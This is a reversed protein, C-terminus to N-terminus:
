CVGPDRARSFVMNKVEKASSTAESVYYYFFLVKLFVGQGEMTREEELQRSLATGAVVTPGRPFPSVTGSIKAIWWCRM